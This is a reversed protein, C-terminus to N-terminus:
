SIVKFIQEIFFYSEKIKYDIRRSKHIKLIRCVRIQM